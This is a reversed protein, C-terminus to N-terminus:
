SGHSLGEPLEDAPTVRRPGEDIQQRMIPPRRDRTPETGTGGCRDCYLEAGHCLRCSTTM